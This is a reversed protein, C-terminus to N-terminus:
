VGYSPRHGYGGALMCRRRRNRARVRPEGMQRALGVAEGRRLLSASRWRMERAGTELAALVHATDVTAARPYESTISMRLCGTM